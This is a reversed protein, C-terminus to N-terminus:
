APRRVRCGFCKYAQQGSLNDFYRDDTLLNAPEYLPDGFEEALKQMPGFTNPVFITDPRIGEWILATGTISGRPSEVIVPDKDWSVAKFKSDGSGKEGAVRKLPHKLRLRNYVLQAMMPGKVCLGGAQVPDQTEGTIDIIRGAKLHVKLRCLSNCFQCASDVIKDAQLANSDKTLDFVPAPQSTAPFLNEAAVARQGFGYWAETKTAKLSHGM